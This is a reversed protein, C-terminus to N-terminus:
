GPQNLPQSSHHHADLALMFAPWDTCGMSVALRARVDDAAPLTHTQQDEAYQLRHEVRRLFDYAECLQEVADRPLLGLEALTHLTPVTPRQRLHAERGGRIMQMAQAIFEIERIGGPGLKVHGALERRAVERRIEAHLGKLSEVAGFDLYRRYIFPTAVQMLEHARDGTLVRAKIWAYREWDRGHAVFYNELADFSMALPGDGWPRLRMDVRFVYGDADTNSLRQILRKGLHNFYEACSVSVTGGRTAGEEPYLFILDIDSSVNLEGGGLKGMGVLHLRQVAGTESHPTGYRPALEAETAALSAELATEALATMAQTVEDLPAAGALDREMVTLLVDRRLERMARDLLPEGAQALRQAMTSREFPAGSRAAVAAALEPRAAFRGRAYGSFAACLLESTM